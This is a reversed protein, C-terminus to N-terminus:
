CSSGRSRKPTEHARARPHAGASSTPLLLGRGLDYPLCLVEIRLEKISDGQSGVISTLGSAWWIAAATQLLITVFVVEPFKGNLFSLM